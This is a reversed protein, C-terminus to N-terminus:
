SEESIGLTNFAHEFLLDNVEFISQNRQISFLIIADREERAYLEQKGSIKLLDQTEKESLRLGFAIAILKDRSPTREGSFIQYVYAKSLLSGRVVEAKSIGKQSLLRNLHRTLNYHILNERNNKLYDEIDTAGKIEHRLEDTTKTEM